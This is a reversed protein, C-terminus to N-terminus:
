EQKSYFWAVNTQFYEILDPVLDVAFTISRDRRLSVRRRLYLPRNARLQLDQQDKSPINEDMKAAITTQRLQLQGHVM